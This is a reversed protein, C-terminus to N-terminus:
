LVLKKRAGDVVGQCYGRIPGISLTRVSQILAEGMWWAMALVLGRLAGPWKQRKKFYVVAETLKRRQRLGHADRNVPSWRHILRAKSNVYLRHGYRRVVRTSFEIDELMFFGNAIDFEVDEFVHRRWASLGGSLVDCRILGREDGVSNSFIGVRPDHLIGRFCMSHCVRYVASSRPLNTIVGSCGVMEPCEHFGREIHLLYDPELVVDDELFCVIDGTARAAGVRKADVLGAVQPDHIYVLRIRDDRAFLTNVLTSSEDGVSQDVIVVEDPLRAQSYVSALGDRLDDPRDRTPIVTSVTVKMTM